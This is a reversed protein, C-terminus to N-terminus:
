ANRRQHDLVKYANLVAPQWLHRPTREFWARWAARHQETAPATYGLHRPMDQYATLTEASWVHGTSYPNREIM